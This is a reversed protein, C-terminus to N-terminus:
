FLTNISSTNHHPTITNRMNIQIKCRQQKQALHVNHHVVLATSTHVLTQNIREPRAVANESAKVVYKLVVMHIEAQCKMKDVISLLKMKPVLNKFFYEDENTEEKKAGM